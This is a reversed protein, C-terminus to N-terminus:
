YHLTVVVINIVSLVVDELEGLVSVQSLKRYIFDVNLDYVM